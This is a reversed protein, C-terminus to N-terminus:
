AVHITNNCSVLMGNVFKWEDGFQRMLSNQMRKITRKMNAYQKRNQATDLVCVHRGSRGECHFDCGYLSKFEEHLESIAAYMEFKDDEDKLTVYWLLRFDSLELMDERFSESYYKEM